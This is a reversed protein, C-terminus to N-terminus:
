SAPVSDYLRWNFLPNVMTLEGMWGIFQAIADKDIPMQGEGEFLKDFNRSGPVRIEVIEIDEFIPRGEASSRAENKLAMMRFTAVLADDPHRLQSTQM